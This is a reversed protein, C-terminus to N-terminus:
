INYSEIFDLGEEIGSKIYEFEKIIMDKEETKEFCFLDKWIYLKLKANAESTKEFMFRKGDFSGKFPLKELFSISLMTLPIKLKDRIKM